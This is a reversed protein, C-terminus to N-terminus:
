QFKPDIGTIEKIHGTTWYSAVYLYFLAEKMVIVMGITRTIVCLGDSNLKKNWCWNNMRCMNWYFPCLTWLTLGSLTVCWFIWRAFWKVVNWELAKVQIFFDLRYLSTVLFLCFSSDRVTYVSDFCWLM